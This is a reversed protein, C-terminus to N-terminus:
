AITYEVHIDLFNEEALHLEKELKLLRSEKVPFYVEAYIKGGKRWM